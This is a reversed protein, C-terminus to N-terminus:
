IDKCIFDKIVKGVTKGIEIQNDKNDIFHSFNPDCGFGAEILISKCKLKPWALCNPRENHSRTNDPILQDLLFEQGPILKNLAYTINACLQRNTHWAICLPGFKVYKESKTNCNQCISGVYRNKGCICKEFSTSNFHIQIALDDKTANTNIYKIAKSLPLDVLIVDSFVPKFGDFANKSVTNESINNLSVAGCEGSHAISYYIKNKPTYTKTIIGTVFDTLVKFFM